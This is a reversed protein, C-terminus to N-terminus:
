SSRERRTQLVQLCASYIRLRLPAITRGSHAHHQRRGGKHPLQLLFLEQGKRCLHICQGGSRLGRGIDRHRGRDNGHIHKGDMHERLGGMVPHRICQNRCPEHHAGTGRLPQERNRGPKDPLVRSRGGSPPLQIHGRLQSGEIGGGADGVDHKDPLAGSHARKLQGGPIHHGHGKDARVAPLSICSLVSHIRHSCGHGGRHINHHHFCQHRFQAGAGM